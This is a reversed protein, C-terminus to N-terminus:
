GTVAPPPPPPPAASALVADYGPDANGAVAVARDTHLGPGTILMTARVTRTEGPALSGLHWVVTGNPQISGHNAAAVIRGGPPPTEHLLVDHATAQGVNKV